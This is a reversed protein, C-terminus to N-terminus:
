GAGPRPARSRRGSPSRGCRSPAPARRGRGARAPLTLTRPRSAGARRAGGGLPERVAEAVQALVALALAQRQRQGHGVVDRERAERGAGAAADEVRGALALLGGLAGALEVDAHAPRALRHARERAAVLLLDGERADDVLLGVHQQEVLRGAADVDRALRLDVLRDRARRGRALRHQHHAGVQRLQEPHAVAHGHHAAAAEARRARDRLPRGLAHELRRDRPHPALQPLAEDPEPGEQAQREDDDEERERASRGLAVERGVVQPHDQRLGHDHREARDPHREDDDAAADVEGHARRDGEGAHQARERDAVAPRRDDGHQGRDQGAAGDAQQVAERDRAQADHREDGREAHQADRAAGGLPEGVLRGDVRGGVQTLSSATM